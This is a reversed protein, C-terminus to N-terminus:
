GRARLADVGLEHREVADHRRGLVVDVARLEALVKEVTGARRKGRAHALARRAHGDYGTRRGGRRAAGRQSVTGVRV